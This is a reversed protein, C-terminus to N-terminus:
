GHVGGGMRDRVSVVVVVGVPVVAAVAVDGKLFAGDAPATLALVPPTDASGISFAVSTRTENGAKDRAAVALTHSGSASVATGSVYPSGDLTVVVTDLNADTAEIAPTVASTYKGQDAVGAIRIAPPTRDIDFAVSRFLM